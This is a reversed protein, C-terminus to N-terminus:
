VGLLLYFLLVIVGSLIIMWIYFPIRMRPHNIRNIVQNQKRIAKRKCMINLTRGKCNRYLNPLAYADICITEKEKEDIGLLEYGSNILFLFLSNYKNINKLALDTNFEFLIGTYNDFVEKAGEIVNPEAGEVDIKIFNIKKGKLYENLTICDVTIGKLDDYVDMITHGGPNTEHIYLKVSGSTDAVAKPVSIVNSAYNMELNKKLISFNTPEPEFAYVTGWAGVLKSFLLTYYGINAGVDVVTDGEKIIDKIIGTTMPEYEGTYQFNLWDGYGATMKYGNVTIDKSSLKKILFYHIRILRPFRDMRRGRLIKATSGFTFIHWPIKM